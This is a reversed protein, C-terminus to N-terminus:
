TTASPAPWRAGRWRHEAAGTGQQLLNANPLPQATYQLIAKVMAPTLGHNAELMLAVAGSVVPAAISTGSLQMLAKDQAQAAGSVQALAPYRTALSNWAGGAAVTDEGLAAVIKNGPAVLDPKLLNDYQRLGSSLLTSGRTPGRSSFNNVVDDARKVTGKNNLSGVTIVSPEHGPSSITGYTEKGLM